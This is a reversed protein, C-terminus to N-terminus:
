YSIVSTTQLSWPLPTNNQRLFVDDHIKLLEIEAKTLQVGSKDYQGDEELTDAVASFKLYQAFIAPIRQRVWYTDDTPPNGTSALICLYCDGTSDDYVVDGPSYATAASYATSTFRPIPRRYKVFVDEGATYRSDTINAETSTSNEEFTFTQVLRSTSPEKDTIRLIQGISTGYSLVTGVPALTESVTTDPWDYHGWVSELASAIYEALAAAQSPIIPQAADIGMKQLVGNRINKYTATRM